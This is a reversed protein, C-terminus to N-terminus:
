SQKITSSLNLHYNSSTEWRIIVMSNNTLFIKHVGMTAGKVPGNGEVCLKRQALEKLQYWLSRTIISYHIKLDHKWMSFDSKFILTQINRHYEIHTPSLIKSGARHRTQTSGAHDINTIKNIEKWNLRQKQKLQTLQTKYSELRHTLQTRRPELWNPRIYPGAHSM